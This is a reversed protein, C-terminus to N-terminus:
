GNELDGQSIDFDPQADIVAQVGFATITIGEKVNVGNQVPVVIGNFSTQQVAINVPRCDRFTTPPLDAPNVKNAPVLRSTVWAWYFYELLRVQLQLSTSYTTLQQQAASPTRSSSAM